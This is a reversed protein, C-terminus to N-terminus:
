DLVIDDLLRNAVQRRVVEVEDLLLTPLTYGDALTKPIVLCIPLNEDPSMWVLATVLKGDLYRERLLEGAVEEAGTVFGVVVLATTTGVVVELATTTGVVVDLGTTTGLVVLLAGAGVDVQANWFPLHHPPM